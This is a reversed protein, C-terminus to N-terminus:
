LSLQSKKVNDLTLAKCSKEISGKRYGITQENFDVVKIYDKNHHPYDVFAAFVLVQRPLYYSDPFELEQSIWKEISHRSSATSLGSRATIKASDCRDLVSITLAVENVLKADETGYPYFYNITDVTFKPYAINAQRIAWRALGQLGSPLALKAMMAEQVNRYADVQLPKPTRAETLLDSFTYSTM